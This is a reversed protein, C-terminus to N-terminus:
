MRFTPPMLVRGSEPDVLGPLGGAGPDTGLSAEISQVDIASRGSDVICLFEWSPIVSAGHSLM